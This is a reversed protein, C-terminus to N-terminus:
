VYKQYRWVVAYSGYISFKSYRYSYKGPACVVCLQRAVDLGWIIPESATLSVERGMAARILEMPIVTDDDAQPFEGMVEVRSVTSDEGYQEIMKQFLEKDTGEVDRSDIQETKWYQGHDFM